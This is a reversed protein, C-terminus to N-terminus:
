NHFRMACLKERDDVELYDFKCEDSPEIKFHDRFDLRLLYGIPAAILNKLWILCRRHVALNSSFFTKKEEVLGHRSRVRLLSHVLLFLNAQKGELVRVCSINKTYQGPYGPSYFTRTTIGEGITFPECEPAMTKEKVASRKTKSSEELLVSKYRRLEQNHVNGFYGIPRHISQPTTVPYASPM